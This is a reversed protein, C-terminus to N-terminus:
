GATLTNRVWDGVLWYRFDRGQSAQVAGVIGYVLAAIPILSILGAVPICLLGILVASLVGTLAWVIGAVIGGGLWFVLQFFLSQLSHYAVYRSRDKYVLYIILAALLGLFGSILNVLISLHAFMAWTREDSPSLPSVTQPIEDTPQPAPTADM